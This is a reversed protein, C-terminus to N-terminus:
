SPRRPWRRAAHAQSTSPSSDDTSRAADAVDQTPQSTGRTANPRLDPRTAHDALYADLQQLNTLTEDARDSLLRFYDSLRDFLGGDSQRHLHLLAASYGAETPLPLSLLIQDGARILTHGSASDFVRVEVRDQAILPELERGASFMVVRVRRGDCARALLADILGPNAGLGRGDGFLDIEGAAGALFAVPRPAGPDTIHGWSGIVDGSGVPSRREEAIDHLTVALENLAASIAGAHGAETAAALVTVRADFQDWLEPPGPRNAGPRLEYSLGSDADLPEDDWRGQEDSDLRELAEAKVTAARAILRLRQQFWGDPGSQRSWTIATQWQDDAFHLWGEADLQHEGSPWSREAV